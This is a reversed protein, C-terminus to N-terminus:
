AATENTNGKLFAHLSELEALGLRQLSQAIAQAETSQRDREFQNCLVRTVSRAIKKKSMKKKM